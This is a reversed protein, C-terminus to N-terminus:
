LGYQERAQAALDRLLDGHETLDPRTLQMRYLGWRASYTLLEIGAEQLRQNMEESRALKFELMVHQRRPKFTVFNTATGDRALGIYNKNYKLTVGPEVPRVIDELIDDTLALTAPSAKGEWYNRDRPEEPEDEEETGLPM